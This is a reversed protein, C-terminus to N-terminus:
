HTVSFRFVTEHEWAEGPRLVCQPFEPRNPTDPFFQTELCVADRRGYEAGGKGAPCGAMYNGAYFQIGPLTTEVEMRIGSEAGELVAAPRLTGPDGEVVWNHDYGSCLELQRFPQGIRAGIAVPSRFDMPTGEVPAIVGTPISGPGVPTYCSAHLTLLQDMAGGANHGNLNFYAHNTLNCITARDAAARYSLRLAGGELCYTVSVKLRGPYGEEMDGSECSFAAGYEGWPEVKWVKSFFGAPGGHLHNEGDNRDLIYSQGDLTFRGGAIRNAYRGVVAGMFQDQAEYDEMRDFGLVTDVPGRRGQAVLGRLAAGYTLLSCRLIGNDLIIEDVARGDRAAGFPTREM